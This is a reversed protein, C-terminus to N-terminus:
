HGSEVYKLYQDRFFDMMDPPVSMEGSRTAEFILTNPEGDAVSFGGHREVDRLPEHRSEAYECEVIDQYGVEKLIHCLTHKDYLFQHGWGHFARNTACTQQLKEAVSHQKELCYHTKVVWALNPTTLRLVGGRKLSAGANTLFAVAGELPLHEIFHEGYVYDVGAFPWERTVDLVRDLGKFPRIDVNIWGEMLNHPGSGVHVKKMRDGESYSYSDKLSPGDRTLGNDQSTSKYGTPHSYRPSGGARPPTVMM